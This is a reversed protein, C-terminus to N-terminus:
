YHHSVICAECKGQCQLSRWESASCSRQCVRDNGDSCDTSSGGFLLFKGIEGAWSMGQKRRTHTKGPFNGQGAIALKSFRPAQRNFDVEFVYGRYHHQNGFMTLIKNEEGAWVHHDGGGSPWVSRGEMPLWDRKPAWTETTSKFEKKDWISVGKGPVGLSVMLSSGSQGLDSWTAGDATLEVKFTKAYGSAYVIGPELLYALYNRSQGAPDISGVFQGYNPGTGIATSTLDTWKQTSHDYQWLDDYSYQHADSFFPNCWGGYLLVKTGSGSWAFGFDVRGRPGTSDSGSTYEHM